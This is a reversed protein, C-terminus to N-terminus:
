VPRDTGPGGSHGPRSRAAESGPGNGERERLARYLSYAEPLGTRRFLLWAQEMNVTLGGKCPIAQGAAPGTM